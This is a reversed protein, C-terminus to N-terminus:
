FEHEGPFGAKNDSKRDVVTRLQQLQIRFYEHMAASVGAVIEEEVGESVSVQRQHRQLSEPDLNLSPLSVDILEANASFAIEESVGLSEADGYSTEMYKSFAAVFPWPEGADVVRKVLEEPLGTWTSIFEIFPREEFTMLM